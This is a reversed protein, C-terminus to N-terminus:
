QTSTLVAACFEAPPLYNHQEVYHVIMVPSAFIMGRNDAIRIEGSGIFIHDRLTNFRATQFDPCLECFHMGRHVNVPNNAMRVLATLLAPPPIGKKYAHERSLWGVNVMERSCPSYSYPSLDSYYTIQFGKVKRQQAPSRSLPSTSLRHPGGVTEEIDTRLPM